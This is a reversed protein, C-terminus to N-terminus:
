PTPVPPGENSGGGSGVAKVIAYVLGTAIAAGGGIVVATRGRLLSRNEITGVASSPITVAEGTWVVRGSGESSAKTTESVALVFGTDSVSVVRGMVASTERGLLPTLQTSGSPTLAIRVHSGPTLVRDTAVVYRYCGSLLLAAPLIRVLARLWASHPRLGRAEGNRVGHM